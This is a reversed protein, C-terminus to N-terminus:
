YHARSMNTYVYVSLYAVLCCLCVLVYINCKPVPDSGMLPKWRRQNVTKLAELYRNEVDSILPKWRRQNVTKLTLPEWCKEDVTKLAGSLRNEVDIILPKWRREDVTPNHGAQIRTHTHTHIHMYIYEGHYNTCINCVNMCIKRVGMCTRCCAYMCWMCIWLNYTNECLDCTNMCVYSLTICLRVRECM